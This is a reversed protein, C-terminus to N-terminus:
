KRVFPGIDATAPIGMTEDGLSYWLSTGDIMVKMYHLPMDFGACEGNIFVSQTKLTLVGEIWGISQVEYYTERVYPMESSRVHEVHVLFTETFVLYDGDEKMWLGFLQPHDVEPGLHETVVWVADSTVDSSIAPFTPLIQSKVCATLLLAFIFLMALRKM